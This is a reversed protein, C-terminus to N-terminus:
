RIDGALNRRTAPRHRQRHVVPIYTTVRNVPDDDAWFVNERCPVSKTKASVGLWDAVDAAPQVRDISLVELRGTKGTERV